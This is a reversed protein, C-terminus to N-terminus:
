RSFNIVAVFINCQYFPNDLVKLLSDYMSKGYDGQEMRENIEALDRDYNVLKSLSRSIKQNWDNIYRTETGIYSEFERKRRVSDDSANLVEIIELSNEELKTLGYQNTQVDDNTRLEFLRKNIEGKDIVISNSDAGFYQLAKISTPVKQIQMMKFLYDFAEKQAEQVTDDKDKILFSYDLRRLDNVSYDAYPKGM